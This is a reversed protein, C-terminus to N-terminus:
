LAYGLVEATKSTYNLLENHMQCSWEAPELFYGSTQANLRKSLIRKIQVVDPIPSHVFAFLRQFVQQDLSFLKESHILIKRDEPIDALFRQIWGNTETWLWLNKEFASFSEWKPAYRSGVTPVIRTSDFPHNFYWKRRMGSRVVDRPDRVLHIFKVNPVAERIAGALFTGQPSTEVYGRNCALALDFKLKRGVLFAEKLIDLGLVNSADNYEYALKSLGYLLPNPEHYAFLNPAMSLLAALTKTGVRGTSLTFICPYEDSFAALGPKKLIKERLKRQIEFISLHLIKEVM